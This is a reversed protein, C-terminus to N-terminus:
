SGLLFSELYQGTATVKVDCRSSNISWLELRLCARCVRYAYVARPLHLVKSANLAFM